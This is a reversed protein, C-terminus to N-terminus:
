AVRRRQVGAGAVGALVLAAGIAIRATLHEHAGFIGVVLAVIPTLYAMLALRGVPMYQLLWYYGGFTIVSGFIALYLIAAMGPWSWVLPHHRELLLWLITHAIAGYTMPIGAMALHSFELSRRKSLVGSLATVAPSILLVWAAAPALPHIQKLDGSNILVIGALSVALGVLKSAGLKETHLMFHAFVATLLPMLAFLVAALGSTIYQESWYVVGYSVIFSLFGVTMFFPQYRWEWPIKEGRLRMILLFLPGSLGFRIALSFFPPYFELGIKIGLWTTGWILTLLAFVATQSSRSPPPGATGRGGALVESAM